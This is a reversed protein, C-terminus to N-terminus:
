DVCPNGGIEWVPHINASKRNGQFVSPPARIAIPLWLWALEVMAARVRRNGEKALM